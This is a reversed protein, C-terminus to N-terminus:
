HRGGVSTSYTKLMLPFGAAVVAFAGGATVGSVLLLCARGYATLFSEAAIFRSCAFSFVVVASAAAWFDRQHNKKIEKIAPRKAM